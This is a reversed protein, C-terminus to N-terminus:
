AQGAGFRQTRGFEHRGKKLLRYQRVMIMAMRVVRRDIAAVALGVTIERKGDTCDGVEIFQQLTKAQTEGSAEYWGQLTYVWADWTVPEGEFYGDFQVHARQGGLKGIVKFGAGGSVLKLPSHKPM